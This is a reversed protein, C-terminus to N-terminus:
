KFYLEEFQILARKHLECIWQFTFQMEVAIEEFTKFRLYRMTLLLRYDDNSVGEIREEAEAKYEYLANLADKYKQEQMVLKIIDNSLKDPNMSTQIKDKSLNLCGVSEARAKLEELEEKMTKAFSDLRKIKRLYQKAQM